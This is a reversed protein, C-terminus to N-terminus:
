DKIKNKLDRYRCPSIGFHKKFVRIFYDSTSFGVIKRVEKVTIGKNKEMLSVARYMKERLIFKGPTIEKQNKFSQILHMKSVEFHRTIDTVTLDKLRETSCSVIFDAVQDSLNEGKM